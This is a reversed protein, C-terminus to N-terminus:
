TVLTALGFAPKPCHFVVLRIKINVGFSNTAQNVRDRHYADVSM